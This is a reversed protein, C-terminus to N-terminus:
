KEIEVSSGKSATYKLGVVYIDASKKRSEAPKYFNTIKFNEKM